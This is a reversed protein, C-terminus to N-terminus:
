GPGPLIRGPVTRHPGRLFFSMNIEQQMLASLVAPLEAEAALKEPLRVLVQEDSFKLGGIKIKETAEIAM